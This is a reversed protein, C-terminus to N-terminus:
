DAYRMPHHRWVGPAYEPNSDEAASYLTAFAMAGLGKLVECPGIPDPSHNVSCGGGFAAIVSAAIALAACKSHFRNIRRSM